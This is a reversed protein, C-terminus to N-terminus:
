GIYTNYMSLTSIDSVYGNRVGIVKINVYQGVMDSDCMWISVVAESDAEVTGIKGNYSATIDYDDTTPDTPYDNDSASNKWNLYYTVGENNPTKINAIWYHRAQNPCDGIGKVSGADELTPTPSPIDSVTVVDSDTILDARNGNYHAIAKVTVNSGVTFPQTYLTGNQPTPTTGDVTYFIQCSAGGEAETISITNNDVFAIVPAYLKGNLDAISWNDPIYSVGRTVPLTANKCFVGTSHVDGLWQYTSRYNYAESDDYTGWESIGIKVVELAQCHLFAQNLSQNIVTEISSLDVYNLANNTASTTQVLIQHMGQKSLRTVNPFRPFNLQNANRIFMQYFHSNDALGAQNYYTVPINEMATTLNTCGAFMWTFTVTGIPMNPISLNSIDVLTTSGQFTRSGFRDPIVSVNDSMVSWINGGLAYNGTCNFTHYNANDMGFGYTNNGRLYVKGNAPLTITQTLDWTNWTEKDTSYELSLWEAQNGTKTISISNSAGSRDEFYFYNPATKEWLLIQNTNDYISQVQKAGITIDQVTKGGITLTSSM